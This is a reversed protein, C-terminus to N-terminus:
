NQNILIKTNASDIKEIGELNMECVPCKGASAYATDTQCLMPCQYAVIKKNSNCSSLVFVLLVIAAIAFSKIKSNM